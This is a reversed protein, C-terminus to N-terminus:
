GESVINSVFDAIIQDESAALGSIGIAGMVRGAKNKLPSGGPLGTFFPDFDNALLKDSQLRERFTSTSVGMRAATYAKRRSIEISRLPAVDMRLFGLMEGAEDTIAVCIPRGFDEKAKDIAKQLLSQMVEFKLRDM